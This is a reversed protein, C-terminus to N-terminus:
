PYPESLRLLAQGAKLMIQKILLKLSTILTQSDIGFIIESEAPKEKNLAGHVNRLCYITEATARYWSFPKTYNFSLISNALQDNDDLQLDTGIM